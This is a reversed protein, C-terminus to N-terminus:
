IHILSLEKRAWALSPHQTKSYVVENLLEVSKADNGLNRHIVGLNAIANLTAPHDRGLMTELSQANEELLVKAEEHQENLVLMLAMLTKASLKTPHLGELQEECLQLTEKGYALGEKPGHNYAIAQAMNLRIALKLPHKDGLNAEASAMASKLIQEAEPNKTKDRLLISAFNNQAGIVFAHDGSLHKKYTELVGRLRDRAQEHKGRSDELAALNVACQLRTTNSEALRNVCHQWSEEILPTAAPM